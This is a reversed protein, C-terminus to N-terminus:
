DRDPHQPRRSSVTRVEEGQIMSDIVLLSLKVGDDDVSSTLLQFSNHLRGQHVHTCPSLRGPPNQGEVELLSMSGLLTGTLFHDVGECPSLRGPLNQGEVGLPSMSGLLTDEERCGQTYENCPSSGASLNRGEAGSSLLGLMTDSFFSDVGDGTAGGVGEAADMEERFSGDDEAEGGGEAGGVEERHGHMDEKCSPPDSAAFPSAQFASGRARTSKFSFLLHPDRHIGSTLM